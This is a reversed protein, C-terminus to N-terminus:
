GTLKLIQLDEFNHYELYFFVQMYEEIVKILCPKKM